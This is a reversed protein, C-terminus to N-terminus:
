HLGLNCLPKMVDSTNKIFTELLRNFFTPSHTLLLEIADRSYEKGEMILKHSPHMTLAILHLTYPHMIGEIELASDHPLEAMLKIYDTAALVDKAVPHLNKEINVSAPVDRYIEEAWSTKLRIHDEVLRGYVETNGNQVALVDAESIHTEEDPVHVHTLVNKCFVYPHTGKPYTGTTFDCFEGDVIDGDVDLGKYRSLIIDIASLTLENGHYRKFFTPVQRTIVYGDDKDEICMDSIFRSAEPLRKSHLIINFPWKISAIRGIQDGIHKALVMNTEIPMDLEPPIHNQVIDIIVTKTRKSINQLQEVLMPMESMYAVLTLDGTSTEFVSNNKEYHEKIFEIIQPKVFLVHKSTVAILKGM